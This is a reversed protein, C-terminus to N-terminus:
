AAAAPPRKVNQLATEIEALGEAVAAWKKALYADIPATVEMRMMTQQKLYGM